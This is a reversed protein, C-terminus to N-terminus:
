GSLSWARVQVAAAEIELEQADDLKLGRYVCITFDGSVVVAVMVALNAARFLRDVAPAPLPTPLKKAVRSM